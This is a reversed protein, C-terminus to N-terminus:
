DIIIDIDGGVFVLFLLYLVIEKGKSNNHDEKLDTKGKDIPKRDVDLM